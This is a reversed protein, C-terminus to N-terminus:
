PAVRYESVGAARQAHVNCDCGDTVQLEAVTAGHRWALAPSGQPSAAAPWFHPSPVHLGAATAGLRSCDDVLIINSEIDLRALVLFQTAEHAIM